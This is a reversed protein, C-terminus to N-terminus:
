FGELPNFFAKEMLCNIHYFIIFILTKCCCFLCKVYQVFLLSESNWYTAGYSFGPISLLHCKRAQVVTLTIITFTLDVQGVRLLLDWLTNSTCSYPHRSFIPSIHPSIRSNSIIHFYITFSIYVVQDSSIRKGVSLQVVGLEWQTM